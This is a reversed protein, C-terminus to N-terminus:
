FKNDQEMMFRRFDSDMPSYGGRSALDEYLQAQMYADGGATLTGGLLAFPLNKRIADSQSEAAQLMRMEKEQERARALDAQEVALSAKELTRDEREQQNMLQTLAKGSSDAAGMLAAQRQFQEKQAAQVPNLLSQRMLQEEKNTLGLARMEEMRELERLRDEQADGFASQAQQRSAGFAGIGKGLASVGAAILMPTIVPDAM